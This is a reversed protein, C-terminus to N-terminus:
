VTLLQDFVKLTRAGAGRNDEVIKKAAQGMLDVEDKHDLLYHMREYLEDDNNVQVLGNEEIFISIVDRFNQTLPGVLVPKGFSAPEIMNQGGGVRLSKGMFVLDSADYLLRLKGMEDVVIIQHDGTSESRLSYKIVKFDQTKIMDIIDNARECHRPCIIMKLNKFDALLKEYIDILVDEEGLHTSGAIIVKDSPAFGLDEKSLGKEDTDLDFKLNGVVIVKENQAGLDKIRAADVKSQMCFIDVHSLTRGTLWKVKQYRRYSRDSIRGNVQVIPVKNKHLCAYLNPWIETEAAIYIIPDISCIFHKVVWSFDLPAFLVIDSVAMREKAVEYGTKTVTSLVIRKGPFKAKLRDVLDIVALVEGVSVAHIWINKEQSLQDVLNKSLRGFRQGFGKHWKGKLATLPLYFVAIIIYTIDFVIHM